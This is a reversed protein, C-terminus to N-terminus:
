RLKKRYKKIIIISYISILSIIIFSNYSPIESPKNGNNDDDNGGGSGGSGMLAYSPNRVIIFDKDGYPKTQIIGAVYFHNTGFGSVCTTELYDNSNLDQSRWEFNLILIGIPNYGLLKLYTSEILGQFCWAAVIINDNPDIFIDRGENIGGLPYKQYTKGWQFNSENDYKRVYFISGYGDEWIHGTVYVNDKSDLAISDTYVDRNEEVFSKNWQNVKNENYKTVIMYNDGTSMNKTHGTLYIGGYNGCVADDAFEWGVNFWTTNWQYSLSATNFKVLFITYNLYPLPTPFVKDGTVYLNEGSKDLAFGKCYESNNSGWTANVEQVGNENYRAIFVDFYSYTGNYICGLVYIKGTKQDVEVDMGSNHYGHGGTITRNWQQDGTSNFKVLLMESHTNSYNYGILYVDGTMNYVDMETNTENWVDQGWKRYWNEISSTSPSTNMILSKERGLFTNKENVPTMYLPPFGTIGLIFIITFVSIFSNKNM